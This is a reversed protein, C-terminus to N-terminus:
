YQYNRVFDNVAILNERKADNRYSMMKNQGFVFGDGLTDILKKAYDICEQKSGYGLLDTPMGGALVLNPLRKRLEFIDDQEIQVIAVGKPIDQFFEAFRLMTSECMIFLRKKNAIVTDLIKKLYPWYLEGFQDVSLISHALLGIGFLTIFGTSDTNLSGNLISETERAYLAEMAEKLEGKRKRVDLALERIGRYQNFLVEFPPQATVMYSILAGYENKCKDNAKGAFEIYSRFEKTANELEAMTIGPKCYRKFAKAWYFKMPDQAYERYEDGELLHHDDIVVAEGADDIKHFGGGLAQTVLMPNRVGLDFYADFQYRQHFEDNVKELISYDYLADHLNYGADLMKWTFFNALMPVRKNKKFQFVNEFLETRENFLEKADM